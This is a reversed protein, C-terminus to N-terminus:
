NRCKPTVLQQQDLFRDFLLINISFPRNPKLPIQM